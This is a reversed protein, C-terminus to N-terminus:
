RRRRRRVERALPWALIAVVLVAALVVSGNAPQARGIVRAGARVLSAAGLLVAVGCVAATLVNLWPRNIGAPGLLGRDNVMLLLFVAAVPLLVGNAAQALIIAPIPQVGTIGFGVGFVLVAAWVLRYRWSGEAWRRDDAGSGFVTRATVAAALPATIASSFGAAFLGAVFLGPGAAGVRTSLVAALEAYGFRGTVAGGAVVIAMSILGGLVIAVSLGFRMEGLRQGAALGSGLFLNYPVVTTGVLGLVLLGAGPPLSPVLAGRTLEGPSPHLAVATVFFAAGMVAVLLGMARVATRTTGFGLLAGAAAGCAAALWGPAVPTVLALGAAAGLLNGAEYAACGLFISIAAVLAMGTTGVGGRAPSRLAEGLSRGTVVTIRAAAEQLVLCAVTSYTLAWLLAGGFTAGASACTTVTGPGIFAAAIVSWFAVAALRRM